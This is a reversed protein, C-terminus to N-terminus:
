NILSFSNLRCLITYFSLRLLFLSTPVSLAAPAFSLCKCQVTEKIKNRLGHMRENKPGM